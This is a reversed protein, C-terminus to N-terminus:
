RYWSRMSQTHTLPHISIEIDKYLKSTFYGAFGTLLCDKRSSFSLVKHRSNDIKESRNPHEFTFTEVCDDIYFVSALYTQWSVELPSVNSELKKDYSRIINSNTRKTMIPRLYSISNCPISVGTPKLFNQVGDLCEPSLENDGFSGLLESVLIDVNGKYDAQRMDNFILEINENSWMDRLMAELVNIANPNKEVIVIKMKRVINKSANLVARVLPGRGAGVVMVVLEASNKEGEPVM